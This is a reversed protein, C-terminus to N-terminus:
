PVILSNKLRHITRVWMRRDVCTIAIWGSLVSILAAAPCLICCSVIPFFVAQIFFGDEYYPRSSKYSAETYSLYGTFDIISYICLSAAIFFVGAVAASALPRSQRSHLAFTVGIAISSVFFRWLLLEVSPEAAVAAFCWAILAFFFALLFLSSVRFRPQVALNSHDGFLPLFSPSYIILMLGMLSIFGIAGSIM